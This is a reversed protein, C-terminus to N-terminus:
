SRAARLADEFGTIHLATIRGDVFEFVDHVSRDQGSLRVTIDVTVRRGSPDIDLPGPAPRFDDFTFTNTRYYGLVADRGVLRVDGSELVADPAFLPALREIDQATVASFYDDMWAAPGVLHPPLGYLHRANLGLVKIQTAPSCPAIARRIAAAAGPFTADRLPNGTGWVLHDAGILPVLVPLTTEEADTGFCIACQRAFYESPTLKMDAGPAGSSGVQETLQELWVPSWGGESALLLCRLGPHRELVGSAILQACALVLDSDDTPVIVRSGVHISIPVGLEEAAGWIPTYAPDALSRELCDTLDVFGARCGLESVARRFEVAAAAPDQLPLLAAAFLRHPAIRCYGSIWNNYARAISVVAVPDPVAAAHLGITPYLVAQDIGEGDM